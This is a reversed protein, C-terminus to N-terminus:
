EFEFSAIVPALQGHQLATACATEDGGYGVGFELLLAPDGPEAGEPAIILACWSTRALSTGTIWAAARRKAGLMEVEEEVLTADLVDDGGVVNAFDEGLKTASVRLILPGGPPGSMELYRGRVLATGTMAAESTDISFGLAPLGAAEAEAASVTVPGPASVSRETSPPPNERVEPPDPKPRNELPKASEPESGKNGRSSGCALALSAVVLLSALGLRSM